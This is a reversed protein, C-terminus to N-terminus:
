RQEERHTKEKYRYLFRVRMRTIKFDNGVDYTRDAEHSKGCDESVASIKQLDGKHDGSM